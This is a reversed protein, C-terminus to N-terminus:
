LSYSSDIAAADSPRIGSPGASLTGASGPETLEAIWWCM